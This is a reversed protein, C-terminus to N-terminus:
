AGMSMELEWKIAQKSLQYSIHKSKFAILVDFYYKNFRAFHYIINTKIGKNGLSVCQHDQKNTQKNTYTCTHKNRRTTITQTQQSGKGLVDLLDAYNSPLM